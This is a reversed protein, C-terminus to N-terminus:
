DNKLKNFYRSLYNKKFEKVVIKKEAYLFLATHLIHNMSSFISTIALIFILLFIVIPSLINNGLILYLVMSIFILIFVFIFMIIFQIMSTNHVKILDKGWTKKVQNISKKVSNITSLNNYAMNPLVFISFISWMSGIISNMFKIIIKGNKGLMRSISDILLLVMGITSSFLTWYFIRKINTLSFKLSDNITIKENNFYKKTSYILCVNFFTNIFYIGLYLLFFMFYDIFFLKQQIQFNIFFFILMFSIFAFTFAWSMATFFILDKKNKLIDFCTETINWIKKFEDM